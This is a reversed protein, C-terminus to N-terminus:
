SLNDATQLGVYSTGGDDTTITFVDTEGTAPAAPAVGGAWEISSPWTITTNQITSYQFVTGNTTGVMYMKKGNNGFALGKPATDQGGVYFSNAASLTSVDWATSLTFSYVNRDASDPDVVYLETGDDNFRVSHPNGTTASISQNQSFSATSVDWATSLNYENIDDGNGGCVYMKTGDPKFTLGEPATEQAAISKSKNDYSGTSVDWATSLSYQYVTDSSAGIMYMKTGDPKFHVDGCNVDQGSFSFTKSAYSATSVDYATTLTWQDVASGGPGIIYMSAGDSKFFLGEPTNEQSGVNISKNDYVANTFGYGLAGGTVELQFSQVDGANSITYTTNAALTDSFYNGTSLDINSSTITGLTVKTPGGVEVANKLLFDKNNSM